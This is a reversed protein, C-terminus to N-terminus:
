SSQFNRKRKRFDRPGLGTAERIKRFERCNTKADLELTEFPVIPDFGATVAALMLM